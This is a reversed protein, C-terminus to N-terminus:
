VCETVPNAVDHSYSPPPLTAATTAATTAVTTAVTGHRRRHMAAVDAVILIFAVHIAFLVHALTRYWRPPNAADEEWAAIYRYAIAKCFVVGLMRELIKVYSSTSQHAMHRTWCEMHLSVLVAVISAALPALGASAAYVAAVLEAWFFLYEVNPFM